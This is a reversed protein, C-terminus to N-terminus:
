GVISLSLSTELGMIEIIEQFVESNFAKRAIDKSEFEVVLSLRGGDWEQLDSDQKISRAIVKGGVSLIWPIVTHIYEVFLETSALTTQKVWYGKPM